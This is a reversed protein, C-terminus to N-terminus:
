SPSFRSFEREHERRFRRELRELDATSVLYRQPVPWESLQRFREIGDISNAAEVIAPLLISLNLAPDRAPSFISPSSSSSGAGAHLDETDLVAREAAGLITLSAQFIVPWGRQLGLFHDWISLVQRLPVRDCQSFINIFWDAAFMSPDCEAHQFRAALLPLREEVLHALQDFCLAPRALGPRYLSALDYRPSVLLSLLITLTGEEDGGLCLLLLSGLYNMGQCYGVEPQAVAAAHLVNFLKQEATSTGGAVTAPQEDNAGGAAASIHGAERKKAEGDEADEGEEAAVGVGSVLGLTDKLWAAGWLRAAALGLSGDAFTRSVDKEIEHDQDHREALLWQYLAGRTLTWDPVSLDELDQQEKDEGERPM